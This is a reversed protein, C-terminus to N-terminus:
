ENIVGFIDTLTGAAALDIQARDSINILMTKAGDRSVAGAARHVPGAKTVVHTLQGEVIEYHGVSASVGSFDTVVLGPFVELFMEPTFGTTPQGFEKVVEDEIAGKFADVLEASVKPETTVVEQSTDDLRDLAGSFLLIGNFIILMVAVILITKLTQWM